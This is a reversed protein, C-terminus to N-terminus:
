RDKLFSDLRKSLEDKSNDKSTSDTAIERRLASLRSSATGDDIDIIDEEPETSADDDVNVESITPESNSDDSEVNDEEFSIDDLSIDDSVIKM